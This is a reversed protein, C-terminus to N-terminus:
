KSYEPGRGSDVRASSGGPHRDFPYEGSCESEGGSVFGGDRWEVIKWGMVEQEKWWGDLRKAREWGRLANKTDNDLRTPNKRFLPTGPLPLYTHAHIRAGSTGIMEEMLRLSARRDERTEEPFGFVFDVHPVFGAEHIWRVAELAQGATHGRNLRSLLPDSGSQAGLVVTKNQCYRKVLRLIDPNVWDPRVESPYCGFHIAEMGADRCAALLAEISELDVAKEGKAGYSFANSSIFATRSCGHPVARKVIGAVSEPSRHRLSRGFIRPAQCFACRYLCGRSIEIPSFFRFDLSHQPHDLPGPPDEDRVVRGHPLRGQLLRRVFDPWTREAEGAFVYDFGARLTGGPDATAHPGGALLLTGPSLLNRLEAVEESVRGFHPTTFSFLVVAERSSGKQLAEELSGAIGISVEGSLGERELCGLLVPLTYRNGRTKRLILLPRDGKGPLM